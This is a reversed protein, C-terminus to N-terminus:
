DGREEYYLCNGYDNAWMCARRLVYELGTSGSVGRYSNLEHRCAAVSEDEVAAIFWRCKECVAVGETPIGKM